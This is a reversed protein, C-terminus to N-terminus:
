RRTSGSGRRRARRNRGQDDRDAAHPGHLPRGRRGGQHRPEGDGRLARRLGAPLGSLGFLRARQRRHVPRARGAAEAWGLCLSLFITNRAPVYTVPIGTSSAAKPVAIDDTLASGGFRSLDLPLVIHREVGLARAIAAAAECSSGTASTTTSPSRSCGSARRARSRRRRGDFGPRGLAPRSRSHRWPAAYLGRSLRFFFPGSGKSPAAWNLSDLGALSSLTGLFPVSGSM